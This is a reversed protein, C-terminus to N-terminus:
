FSNLYVSQLYVPLCFPPSLSSKHYKLYHSCANVRYPVHVYFSAQQLPPSVCLRPKSFFIPEMPGPPSRLLTPAMLLLHTHTTGRICTGPSPVVQTVSGAMGQGLRAVCRPRLDDKGREVYTLRRDLSGRAHKGMKCRFQSGHYKLTFLSIFFEPDGRRKNESRSNKTKKPATKEHAQQM